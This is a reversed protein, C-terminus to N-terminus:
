LFHFRLYFSCLKKTKMEKVQVFRCHPKKKISNKEM